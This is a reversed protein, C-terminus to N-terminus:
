NLSKDVSNSEWEYVNAPILHKVNINERFNTVSDPEVWDVMDKYCPHWPYERIFGQYNTSSPSVFGPDCLNKGKLDKKLKEVDDKHVICTNIRFWGDQSPIIGENSEPKKNWKSFGRLVTWKQNDSPNARILLDKFPPVVERDWLWSK